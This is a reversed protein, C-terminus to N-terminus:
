AASPKSANCPQLAERLKTMESKHATTVWEPKVEMVWAMAKFAEPIVHSQESEKRFEAVDAEADITTEFIGADNLYDLMVRGIVSECKAIIELLYNGFAFFKKKGSQNQVEPVALIMPFNGDIHAGSTIDLGRHVVANRLERIYSYNGPGDKYGDFVMHSYLEAEFNNPQLTTTERFLETAALLNLFYSSYHVRLDTQDTVSLPTRFSLAARLATKRASMYWSLSYLMNRNAIGLTTMPEGLLCSFNM